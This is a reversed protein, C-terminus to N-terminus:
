SCLMKFIDFMCVYRGKICKERFLKKVDEVNPLNQLFISRIFNNVLLSKDLSVELEPPITVGEPLANKITDDISETTNVAIATFKFVFFRWLSRYDTM